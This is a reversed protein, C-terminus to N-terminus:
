HYPSWRSRCEKGVRREESRIHKADSPDIAIESIARGLFADGSNTCSYTTNSVCADALKTWSNGGNTSKYIGVGSECGSSCRNAEGTGLYITNGSADNPDAVITGISNTLLGGDLWTWSPTAALADNTRWVGGGAATAWLRCNGPVCTPAVVLKTIRSATASTAGTFSLVGPEIANQLPGYADWHNNGNSDGQKAIKEFTAKANQVFGPPIVNAPYTKSASLYAEYSDVPGEGPTDAAKRASRDPDASFKSGSWRDPRAGASTVLLAVVAAVAVLAGALGFRFLTRTRPM